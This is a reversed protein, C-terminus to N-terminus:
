WMLRGRRHAWCSFTVDVFYSAPHRHAFDVKVGISTTAGGFGAVGIGLANVDRFVQQEFAAIRPDPHADHLRRLLQRKSLGTVQDKAGGVTVAITYPPCGKGQAKLVADLVCMRVGDLDREAVRGAEGFSDVPAPLKYIQGLNESGGGKLMLDVTLTSDVTEEVHIIPFHNGVNDGSNSDSVIDVANARLPIKRTALRTADIIIDRIHQHGLGPPVKVYFVPFGTDQCIPRSTTRALSINQLMIGLSKQALENTENEYAQKLAKEVDNPISTAVKRYLEVIGERLKLM